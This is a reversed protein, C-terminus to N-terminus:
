FGNVSRTSYWKNEYSSVNGPIWKSNYSNICIEANENQVNM